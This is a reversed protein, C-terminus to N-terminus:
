LSQVVPPSTGEILRWPRALPLPWRGMGRLPRKLSALVSNDSWRSGMILLDDVIKQEIGIFGIREKAVLNM